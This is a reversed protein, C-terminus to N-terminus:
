IWIGSVLEPIKKSPIFLYDKSKEAGRGNMLKRVLSLIVLLIFSLQFHHPRNTKPGQVINVLRVSLIGVPPRSPIIM